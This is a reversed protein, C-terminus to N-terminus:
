QNSIFLEKEILLIERRLKGAKLDCYNNWQYFKNKNEQHGKIHIFTPRIQKLVELYEEWIDRNPRDQFSGDQLWNYLWGKRISEVVYKADSYINITEKHYDEVNDIIWKLANLPGKLEERGNATGFSGEGDEHILQFSKDVIVFWYAGDRQSTKKNNCSGDTFVSIM